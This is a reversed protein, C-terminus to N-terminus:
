YCEIPIGGSTSIIRSGRLACKIGPGFGTDRLGTKNGCARSACTIRGATDERDRCVIAPIGTQRGIEECFIREFARDADLDISTIRDQDRLEFAVSRTTSALDVDAVFNDFLQPTRSCDGDLRSCGGMSREAKRKRESTKGPCIISRTNFGLHAFLDNRALFHLFHGPLGLLLLLRAFALVLAFPRVEPVCDRRLIQPNRTRM